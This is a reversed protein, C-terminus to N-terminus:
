YSDLMIACVKFNRVRKKFVEATIKSSSNCYINYWVGGTEDYTPYCFVDGEENAGCDRFPVFNRLSGLLVGPRAGNRDQLSGVFRLGDSSGGASKLDACVELKGGRWLEFNASGAHLKVCKDQDSPEDSLKKITFYKPATTQLSQELKTIDLVVAGTWTDILGKQTILLTDAQQSVAASAAAFQLFASALLSALLKQMM